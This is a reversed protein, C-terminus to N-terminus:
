VVAVNVMAAAADVPVGARGAVEVVLEQRAAVRGVGQQDGDVTPEGVRTELVRAPTVASVAEANVVYGTLDVILDLERHSYVCVTGDASLEIMGGNAVTQGAAYNLMSAGPRQSGCPYAAIFGREAADVAAINFVGAVAADPVGHRGTVQVVTEQGAARRGIGEQRGDVTSEGTRTEVLRGPVTTTVASNEPVFGTVDVIVDAARHTYVCLTGEVSLEVTAGNAITQGAAHNLMSAQPRDGGCPYAAVFGREDPDIVAVNVMAATASSPVGHRGAVEVVTEEGAVRRGIGAQRGDVTSEGVRTELLRGPSVTEIGVDRVEPPPLLPRDLRLMLLRNQVTPIVVTRTPTVRAVPKGLRGPPTGIASNTADVEGSRGSEPVYTAAGSVPRGAASWFSSMAIMGGQDLAVAQQSGVADNATSGILSNGATVPGTLGGLGARVFTVAGADVIAGRDWRPSQVLYGGGRSVVVDNSGIEDDAREGHLSNAATVPGATGGAAAVFTVAGVDKVGDLDWTPSVVVFDGTPLVVTGKSGVFDFRTTGHLSNATTVPGTLGVAGDAATVAGVREAIPSSWDRSNVVYDGNPLATVGPRGIRDGPTSGHLSNATTVPGTLGLAGDVFTVAGLGESGVVASGWLTSVVVYNGNTLPTVGGDGVRDGVLAGHLSNASTVPGTMGSGAVLTVAGADARPGHDWSPSVVVYDGNTLPTVGGDGVEDGVKTGHLSNASTVPGTMDPPAALTVAGVDITSGNDWPSSAVVFNGNTLAVVGDDGVRDGVKTGHLSNATTVPGVVGTAGDGFIVAGVDPNIGNDWEPHVVVYGGGALPVVDHSGLREKAKAGILSNRATVPGMVGDVGSGFTVAGAAATAENSWSESSVVYNGNALEVIGGNGVRDGPSSGHLSNGSTVTGVVGTDGNLFTVAGVDAVEGDDWSSSTIVAHGTTLAVVGGSGVKDNASTGTLTSIVRETTGDYLYVAGVNLTDGDDYGPDTVVINGNALVVAHLGFEGGDDRRLEDYTTESASTLTPVILGALAVVVGVTAALWGSNRIPSATRSTNMNSEM